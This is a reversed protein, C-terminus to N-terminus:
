NKQGSDYFFGYNKQRCKRNFFFINLVNAARKVEAISPTYVESEEETDNELDEETDNEKKQTIESVIDDDTPTGSTFLEDDCSTFQETAERPFINVGHRELWLAIPLDDENEEETTNTEGPDKLLGAHRFCNRITAPTVKRWSKELLLIAELLSIDFEMNEDYKELVRMLLQKRYHSKLSRIVGQDMPQLVSTTNPPLFVLKICRLNELHPHATCNDVLLVIKRKTKWLDNDWQRLEEEFVKSTMWSKQNAKYNVPLKKVNKFCRPKLSKGIVTLKRKESGNMNACVLVTIRVKSLKGSSCKEGKFKLTQNPTMRYFLGAEDANFIDQEEYSQIIDPWVENKWKEVDLKRVSAEEGVVKGCSICNRKKFRDLWGNSCVFAKEEFKEAFENAKAQLMAGTVTLNRDRQITFWKLLAEEVNEKEAKRLKKSSDMNKEHASVIAHRNKWITSVTSKALSLDKCVEAQNTGAEIRKIIRIKDEISFAKRKLSNAM